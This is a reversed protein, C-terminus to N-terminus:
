SKRAVGVYLPIQEGQTDRNGTEPDWRAALEIGPDLLELGDFFRAFEGRSRVRTSTGGKRYVEVVREWAEPDFDGTAHSLALHSGPSLSKLLEAVIGHPNDEDGVLHLLAVM